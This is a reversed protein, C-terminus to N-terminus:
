DIDIVLTDMMYAFLHGFGEAAEISYHATAVVTGKAAPIIYVRQLQRPMVDGVGFSADISTCSGANELDYMDTSIEYEKSLEESISSIVADTNESRYTVELYNEPNSLDDYISIFSEKGSESHRELSEYDFDIAIGMEDNRAHEYKVPEETGELMIVDEFREGDERTDKTNSEQMSEDADIVQEESNADTQDTSTEDQEELQVSAEQASTTDTGVQEFLDAQNEKKEAGCASITAAVCLAALVISKRTKM